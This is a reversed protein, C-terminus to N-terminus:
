KNEEKHKGLEGHAQFQDAWQEVEQGHMLTSQKDTQDQSPSLSSEGQFAATDAQQEERQLGEGRSERQAQLQNAWQVVEQDNRLAAHTDTIGEGDVDM